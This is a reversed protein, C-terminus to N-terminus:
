RKLVWFLEVRVLSPKQCLQTLLTNLLKVSVIKEFFHGDMFINPRDTVM